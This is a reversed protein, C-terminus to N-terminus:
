SKTRMQTHKNTYGITKPQIHLTIERVIHIYTHKNNGTNKLRNKNEYKEGLTM